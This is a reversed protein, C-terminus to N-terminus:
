SRRWRRMRMTARSATRSAMWIRAASTNSGTISRIGISYHAHSRLPPCAAHSAATSVARQPGDPWSTRRRPCCIAPLGDRRHCAPLIGTTEFYENVNRIEKEGIALCEHVVRKVGFAALVREDNLRPAEVPWNLRMRCPWGKFSFVSHLKLRAFVGILEILIDRPFVAVLSPFRESRMPAIQLNTPRGCKELKFLIGTVTGPSQEDLQAFSVQWEADIKPRSNPVSEDGHIALLALKEPLTSSHCTYASVPAQHTRQRDAAQPRRCGAM